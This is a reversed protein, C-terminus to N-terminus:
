KETIKKELLKKVGIYYILLFKYKLVCRDMREWCEAHKIIYPVRLKQDAFGKLYCNNRYKIM